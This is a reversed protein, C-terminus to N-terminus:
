GCLIERFRRSLPYAYVDKVPVSMTYDTDNRSRGKTQGLHIWNAARYCTGAFRDTQVFTELMHVPHGYREQWDSSVRRAAQALVHSALNPVQVWPLILFRMNNTILNVNSERCVADWGLFTDRPACKWAASGFLLCALPRDQRDRALYAMNRGVTGRWGLYHYSAILHKFLALDHSEVLEVRIPRLDAVEATVPETEHLVGQVAAVKSGRPLRQRPPLTIMGAGELKLLFSRCAMDKVRGDPNRWDWILCLERSIRSRHWSPNRAMLRRVIEVDSETTKRGQVVIPWEM